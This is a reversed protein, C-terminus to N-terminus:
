GTTVVATFVNWERSCYMRSMPIGTDKKVKNRIKHAHSTLDTFAFNTVDLFAEDISYIEIAPTCMALTQMVRNSMDGYLAYNSSFVHLKKSNILHKLKFCPTGMKIGLAKAENSRAVVCGDNNSLVIVPKGTLNPNFVRECSVYFNNCDALTFVTM